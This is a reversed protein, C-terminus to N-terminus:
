RHNDSTLQAYSWKLLTLMDLSRGAADARGTYDGPAALLQRVSEQATRSRVTKVPVLAPPRLCATAVTWGTVM